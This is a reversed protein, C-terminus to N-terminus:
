KCIKIFLTSVNAPPTDLVAYVIVAGNVGYPKAKSGSGQDHFTVKLCRFDLVDIDLEPRTHPPFITLLM